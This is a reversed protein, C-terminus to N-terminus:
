EVVGAGVTEGGARLIVRDGCELPVGGGEIEVVVRAVSGPAVIKPKRKAVEGTAKDLTAVLQAIRGSVVLRGRLVELIMPHVHAFALIKATFKSVNRVTSIADYLINGARIPIEADDKGAAGGAAPLASLNITVLDGAVAWDCPQGDSDEITKVTSKVAHPMILIEQGSQVTGCELRGTLSIPAPSNDRHDVDDITMRLPRSLAAETTLPKSQDLEAVLTPGKYWSSEPSTPPNFVNDGCLASCPVFALNAQQFGTTTLFGTMQQLIEQYRDQSWQAADMKNIAVIIRQVGISRALLAHEKTQGRLGAEFEGATSDVVLVAFDAQSTGAIMNPVFDRHGPADLITFTTKETEFKDTAIDITVGHSREESGQDLVWALAFSGKGAAEAEQRLESIIHKDVAGLDVLLRGM